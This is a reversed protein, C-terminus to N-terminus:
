TGALVVARASERLVRAVPLDAARGALVEDLVPRKEASLAMVVVLRARILIPLTLTLRRPPQAPMLAPQRPM